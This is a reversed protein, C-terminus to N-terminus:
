QGGQRVGTAYIYFKEFRVAPHGSQVRLLGTPRKGNKNMVVMMVMMVM